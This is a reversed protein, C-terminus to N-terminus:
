EPCFPLCMPQPLLIRRPLWSNVPVLGAKVGFGFFTLLFVIWRTGPGLGIAATKLASFELSGARVALLLLVLEVAMFGAEGMALMLYGAQKTGVHQHEFNVLMYSSISM